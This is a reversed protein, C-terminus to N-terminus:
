WQFSVASLKTRRHNRLSQTSYPTDAKDVIPISLRYGFTNISSAIFGYFREVRGNLFPQVISLEADISIGYIMLGIRHFEVESLNLKDRILDIKELQLLKRDPVSQIIPSLREAFLDLLQAYTIM